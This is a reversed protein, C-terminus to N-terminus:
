ANAASIAVVTEGARRPPAESQDGLVRLEGRMEGGEDVVLTGYHIKGSVRGTSHIILQCRATLEGEFSGDIEALDISVKGTFAGHEAIRLVRSNMTAEVRGEVILTDCDLIEAGKLEVGPGVLLRASAARDGAPLDCVAPSSPNSGQGAGAPAPQSGGTPAVPSPSAAPRTAAPHSEASRRSADAAAITVPESAAGPPRSSVPSHADSEARAAFQTERARGPESQAPQNRAFISNKNFM